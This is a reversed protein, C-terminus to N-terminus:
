GEFFFVMGADQPMFRVDMLGQNREEPDDATAYRLTTIFEGESNLFSLEDPYELVRGKNGPQDNKKSEQGCSVLVSTILLLLFTKNLKLHHKM